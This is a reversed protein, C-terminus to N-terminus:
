QRIIFCTQLQYVLFIHALSLIAQEWFAVTREAGQGDLVYAKVTGEVILYSSRPIENLYALVTGAKFDAEICSSFFECDILKNQRFYVSM